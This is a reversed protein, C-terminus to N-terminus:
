RFGMTPVQLNSGSTIKPSETKEAEAVPEIPGLDFNAIKQFQDKIFDKKEANNMQQFRKIIEIDDPSKKSFAISKGIDQGNNYAILHKCPIDKFYGNSIRIEYKGIIIREQEEGLVFDPQKESSSISNNPSKLMHSALSGGLGIGLQIAPACGSVVLVIIIVFLLYIRKM